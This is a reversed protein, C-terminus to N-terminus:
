QYALVENIFAELDTNLYNNKIESRQSSALPKIILSDTVLFAGSMGGALIYGQRNPRWEFFLVYDRGTKLLDFGKVKISARNGNVYVVGGVRVFTLPSTVPSNAKLVRHADVSYTTEIDDGPETFASNQGTIRGYIILDAGKALSRLDSYESIEPESIIEVDRESAVERMSKRKLRDAVGDADKTPQQGRPTQAGTTFWLTTFLVIGLLTVVTLSRQVQKRM